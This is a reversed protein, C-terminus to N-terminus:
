QLLMNYLLIKQEHTGRLMHGNSFCCRDDAFFVGQGTSRIAAFATLYREDEHMLVRGNMIWSIGKWVGACGM